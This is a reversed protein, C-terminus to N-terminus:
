AELNDILTEVVARIQAGDSNGDHYKIYLGSGNSGRWAAEWKGRRFATYLGERVSRVAARHASLSLGQVEVPVWLNPHERCHQAVEEWHDQPLASHAQTTPLNETPPGFIARPATDKNM